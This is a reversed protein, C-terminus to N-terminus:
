NLVVDATNIECVGILAISPARQELVIVITEMTAICNIVRFYKHLSAAM